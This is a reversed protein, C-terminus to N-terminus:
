TRQREVLGNRLDPDAHRKDSDGRWYAGAVKMLKFSSGIQGTSVMHPGRCLDFWDGQAYIKLRMEKPSRTSWNSRTNSAWKPLCTRPRRGTGSRNRSPSTARSSKGCRQKSPPSTKRRSRNTGPSITISATKSSRPRHDSAHRSVIGARSRGHCARLRPPHAGPSGTSGPYRDRDERRRNDSRRSRCARWRDEDGRAKKALSKSIGAAIDSGTIGADFERISNDPFTLKLM